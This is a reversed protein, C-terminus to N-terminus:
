IRLIQSNAPPLPLLHIDQIAKWRGSPIRAPDPAFSALTCPLPATKGSDHPKSQVFLGSVAVPIDLCGLCPGLYSIGASAAAPAVEDDCCGDYSRELSTRGDSEICLVMGGPLGTVFLACLGATLLIQRLGTVM